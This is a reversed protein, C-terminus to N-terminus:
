HVYTRTYFNESLRLLSAAPQLSGTVQKPTLANGDKKLTAQYYHFTLLLLASLANIANQLTASSFHLDRQHKVNNYSKWWRPSSVTRSWEDWPTLTLGYRPVYVKSVALQPIGRTLIPKYETIKGAKTTPEFHKCLLKAIVDVESAAAFLIHAFEISYVQFNAEAFEVFRSTADLDSELALFYNWHIKGSTAEIM